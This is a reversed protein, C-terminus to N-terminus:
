KFYLLHCFGAEGGLKPNILLCEENMRQVPPNKKKKKQSSPKQDVVRKSMYLWLQVVFTVPDLLSWCHCPHPWIGRAGLWSGTHSSWVPLWRRACTLGPLTGPQHEYLSHCARVLNMRGATGTHLSPKHMLSEQSILFEPALSVCRQSWSVRGSSRVARSLHAKPM